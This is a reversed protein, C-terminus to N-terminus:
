SVAQLRRGSIAGLPEWRSLAILLLLALQGCFWDSFLRFWGQEPWVGGRFLLALTLAFCLLLHVGSALAFHQVFANVGGKWEVFSLWLALFLTLPFYWGRLEPYASELFCGAIGCICLGPGRACAVVPVYVWIWFVPACLSFWSLLANVGSFSMWLLLLLAGVKM